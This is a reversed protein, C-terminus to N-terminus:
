FPIAKEIRKAGVLAGVVVGLPITVLEEPLGVQPGLQGGVLAIAGGFLAGLARDDWSTM